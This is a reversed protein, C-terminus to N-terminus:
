RQPPGRLAEIRRVMVERTARDRIRSAAHRAEALTTDATARL